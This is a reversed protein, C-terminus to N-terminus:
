TARIARRVGRYDTKVADVIIDAITQKGNQALYQQFSRADQTNINQSIVIPVVSQQANAGNGGNLLNSTQNAPIITGSTRPVFLEPGEEGVLSPRNVPPTGGDAFLNRGVIWGLAKSLFGGGSSVGSSTTNTQSNLNLSNELQKKIASRALDIAMTALMDSFAESLSKTGDIASKLGDTLTDSISTAIQENKQREQDKVQALEDQYAKEANLKDLTAQLYAEKDKGVLDRWDDVGRRRM